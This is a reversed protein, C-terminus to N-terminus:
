SGRRRVIRSREAGANLVGRRFLAERPRPLALIASADDGILAAVEKRVAEPAPSPRAHACRAVDEATAIAESCFSNLWGEDLARVIADALKEHQTTRWADASPITGREPVVGAPPFHADHEYAVRTDDARHRASIPRLNTGLDFRVVFDAQYHGEHKTATFTFVRAEERIRTVPRTRTRYETRYKTVTRTADRRTHAHRRRDPQV